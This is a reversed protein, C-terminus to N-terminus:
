FDRQKHLSLTTLIKISGFSIIATIIQRGCTPFTKLNQELIVSPTMNPRRWLSLKSLSPDPACVTLTHTNQVGEM